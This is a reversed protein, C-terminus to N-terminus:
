FWNILPSLHEKRWLLSTRARPLSALHTGILFYTSGHTHSETGANICIGSPIWVKRHFCPQSAWYEDCEDETPSSCPAVSSGTLDLFPLLAVTLLFPCSAYSKYLHCWCSEQPQDGASKYSSHLGVAFIVRSQETCRIKIFFKFSFLLLSYIAGGLAEIDYVVVVHALLPRFPHFFWLVISLPDWAPSLISSAPLCQPLEWWPSKSLGWFRQPPCHPCPSCLWSVVVQAPSLGTSPMNGTSEACYWVVTLRVAERSKRKGLVKKGSLTNALRAEPRACWPTKTSKTTNRGDGTWVDKGAMSVQPACAPSRWTWHICQTGITVRISISENVCSM